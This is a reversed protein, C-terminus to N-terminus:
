LYIFIKIGICKQISISNQALIGCDILWVIACDSYSYCGEKSLMNKEYIKIMFM